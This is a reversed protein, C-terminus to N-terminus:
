PTNSHYMFWIAGIIVGWVLSCKAAARRIQKKQMEDKEDNYSREQEYYALLVACFVWGGLSWVVFGLLSDFTFYHHTVAVLDPAHVVSSLTYLFCHGEWAKPIRGRM